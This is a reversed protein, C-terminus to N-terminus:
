YDELDSNDEFGEKYFNSDIFEWANMGIFKWEGWHKMDILKGNETFNPQELRSLSHIQQKLKGFAKIVEIPINNPNIEFNNISEILTIEQNTM